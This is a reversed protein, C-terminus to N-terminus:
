ATGISSGRRLAEELSETNAILYNLQYALEEQQEAETDKAKQYQEAKKELQLIHLSIAKRTM